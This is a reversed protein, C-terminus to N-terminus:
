LPQFREGTPLLGLGMEKLNLGWCSQILPLFCFCFMLLKIIFVTATM